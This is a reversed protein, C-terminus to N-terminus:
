TFESPLTKYAEDQAKENLADDSPFDYYNNSIRNYKERLANVGLEGGQGGNRSCPHCRGSCNARVRASASSGQHYVKEGGRHGMMEGGKVCFAWTSSSEARRLSIVEITLHWM